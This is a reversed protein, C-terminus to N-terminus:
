AEILVSSEVAKIAPCNPDNCTVRHWVYHTTQANANAKFNGFFSGDTLGSWPNTPSKMFCDKSHPVIVISRIKPKNM